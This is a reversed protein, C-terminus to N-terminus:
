GRVRGVLSIDLRFQWFGTSCRMCGSFRSQRRATASPNATMSRTRENAVPRNKAQGIRKTRLGSAHAM